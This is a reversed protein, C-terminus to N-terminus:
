CYRTAGTFISITCLTRARASERFLASDMVFVTFGGVIDLPVPLLHSNLM